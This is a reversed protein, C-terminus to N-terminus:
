KGGYLKIYDNMFKDYLKDLVPYDSYYECLVRWLACSYACPKHSRFLSVYNDYSGIRIDFINKAETMLTILAEVPDNEHENVKKSVYAVCAEHCLCDKPNLFEVGDDAIYKTVKEM